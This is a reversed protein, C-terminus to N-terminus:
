STYIQRLISEKLQMFSEDMVVENKEEALAKLSYDVDISEVIAGPAKSMVIVRTALSLAEEINFFFCNFINIKINDNTFFIFISRFNFFQNFM